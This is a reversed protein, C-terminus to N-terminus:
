FFIYTLETTANPYNYELFPLYHIFIRKTIKVVFHYKNMAIIIHNLNIKKRKQCKDM